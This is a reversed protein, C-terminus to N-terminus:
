INKNKGYFIRGNELNHRYACATSYLRNPHICRKADSCEEFLSCCGFSSAYSSEHMKLKLEVLDRFFDVTSAADMRLALKQCNNERDTKDQPLAIAGNPIGVRELAVKRIAHTDIFGQRVKKGPPAFSICKVRNGNHLDSDTAPYDSDKIVISYSVIKGENQGGEQGMNSVLGVSHPLLEWKRVVDETLARLADLFRAFPDERAFEFLDLGPEPRAVARMGRGCAETEIKSM